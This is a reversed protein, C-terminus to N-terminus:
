FRMSSLFIQSSLKSAAAFLGMDPAEAAGPASPIDIGAHCADADVIVLFLVVVELPASVRKNTQKNTQETQKNTQKNTQKGATIAIGTAL